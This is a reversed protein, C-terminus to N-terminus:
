KKKSATKKSAKKSSKKSSKYAGGKKSKKAKSTKEAKKSKAKKSKPKRPMSGTPGGPGALIKFMNTGCQSCVGRMAKRMNKMTVEETSKMARSAKCKMCFGDTM